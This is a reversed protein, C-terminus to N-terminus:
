WYGRSRGVLPTEALASVRTLASEAALPQARNADTRGSRQLRARCHFVTSSRAVSPRVPEDHDGTHDTLRVLVEEFPNLAQQISSGGRAHGGHVARRTRAAAILKALQRARKMGGAERRTPNRRVCEFMTSSWGDAGSEEVIRQDTGRGPQRLQNFALRAHVEFKQLRDFPRGLGREGRLYPTSAAARITGLVCACARSNM